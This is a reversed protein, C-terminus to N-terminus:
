GKDDLIPVPRYILGSPDSREEEEDDDDVEHGHLPVSLHLEPESGDLNHRDNTQHSHNM